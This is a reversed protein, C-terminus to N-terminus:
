STLASAIARAIPEVYLHMTTNAIAHLEIGIAPATIGILPVFPICAVPHIHFQHAYTTHLATYMAAAYARTRDYSAVHAHDLPIMHLPPTVTFLTGVTPRALMYLAIAHKESPNHYCQLSVYLDIPLRNAFNASQLPYVTEGPTRTILVTCPLLEQLRQQLATAYQLMITREFNDNIIRGPHHADGAPDLMITYQHAAHLSVTICLLLFIYRVLPM